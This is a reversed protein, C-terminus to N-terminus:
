VIAVAVCPLQVKVTTKGEKCVGIRAVANTAPDFYTTKVNPVESKVIAPAAALTNPATKVAVLAAVPVPM